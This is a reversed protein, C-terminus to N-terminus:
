VANPPKGVTSYGTKKIKPSGESTVRRLRSLEKAVSRPPFKQM